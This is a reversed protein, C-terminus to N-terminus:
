MLNLLDLESDVILIYKRSNDYDESDHTFVLNEAYM